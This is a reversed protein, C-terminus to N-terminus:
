GITSSPHPKGHQKELDTFSQLAEPLSSFMPFIQNFGVITLLKTINGPTLAICAPPHGRDDERHKRMKAFESLATSDMYRTETLDLVVHPREFAAHLINSLEQKRGLDWDGPLPIILPERDVEGM